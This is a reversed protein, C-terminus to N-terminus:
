RSQRIAQVALRDARENEPHGSHGKVKVFRLHDFQRTLNRLEDVLTQNQRARWGRELLGLVYRSDTHIVVPLSRNKVAILASRVAELEAINNTAIGIPRSIEKRHRGYQLVVGIGAPGSNGSCAGDTFIEIAKPRDNSFPSPAPQVQTQAPGTPQQPKDGSELRAEELPRVSRQHVWYEHPQDLQYKILVKNKDLRPTGHENLAVWVKNRKFQMRKWDTPRPSDEM